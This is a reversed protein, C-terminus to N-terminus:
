HTTVIIEQNPNLNISVYSYTSGYDVGQSCSTKKGDVYLYDYTGSFRAEWLLPSLGKKFKLKTQKQELHELNIVSSGITINTIGLENIDKPLHSLTSIKNSAADPRVGMLNEVVNSILVYSVEPYNGNNGTLNSM